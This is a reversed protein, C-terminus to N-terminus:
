MAWQECVYRAEVVILKGSVLVSSECGSIDHWVFVWVGTPRCDCMYKTGTKTCWGGNQCKCPDKALAGGTRPKTNNVCIVTNSSATTLASWVPAANGRSLCQYYRLHLTSLFNAFAQPNCPLSPLPWLTAVSNVACLRAVHVM